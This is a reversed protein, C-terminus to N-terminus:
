NGELAAIRAELASLQELVWTQTALTGAITAHHAQQEVNVAISQDGVLDGETWVVEADSTSFYGISNKLEGGIDVNVASVDWMGEALGATIFANSLENQWM